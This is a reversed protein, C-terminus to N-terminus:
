QAMVKRTPQKQSVPLRGMATCLKDAIIFDRANVFEVRSRIPFVQQRTMSGDRLAALYGNIETGEPTCDFLGALSRCSNGIMPSRAKKSQSPQAPM